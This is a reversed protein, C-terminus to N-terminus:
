LFDLMHSSTYIFKFRYRKKDKVHHKQPTSIFVTSPIQSTLGHLFAASYYSICYPQSIIGAIYFPDSPIPVDISIGYDSPILQYVGKKVQAVWRKKQLRHVLVRAYNKNISLIKALESITFLKIGKSELQSITKEQLSGRRLKRIKHKPTKM